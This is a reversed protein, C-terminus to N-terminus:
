AINKDIFKQLGSLPMAGVMKDKLQGDQFLMLAPIGMIGFRQALEPEEDVNVKYVKLKDAYLEAIKEVTPGMLRCPGCWPAWFDVLVHKNGKVAPEFTQTNLEDVM